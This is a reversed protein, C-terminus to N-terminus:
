LSHWTLVMSLSAIRMKRRRRNISIDLSFMIECGIVFNLANFVITETSMVWSQHQIYNISINPQQMDM